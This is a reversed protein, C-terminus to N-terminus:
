AGLGIPNTELMRLRGFFSRGKTRIGTPIVQEPATGAIELFGDGVNHLNLEVLWWGVIHSIGISLVSGRGNERGTLSVDIESPAAVRRARARSRARWRCLGACLYPRPRIASKTTALRTGLRAKSPWNARLMSCRSSWRMAARSDRRASTPIRGPVGAGDGQNGGPAADEFEPLRDARVTLAPSEKM